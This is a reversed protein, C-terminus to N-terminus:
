DSIALRTLGQGLSPPITSSAAGIKSLHGQKLPLHIYFNVRNQQSYFDHKASQFCTLVGPFGTNLSTFLIEQGHNQSNGALFTVRSPPVHQIDM